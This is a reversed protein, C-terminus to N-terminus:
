KITTLSTGAYIRKQEKEVFLPLLTDLSNRWPEM